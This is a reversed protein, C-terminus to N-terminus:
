TEKLIFKNIGHLQARTSFSSTIFSSLFKGVDKPVQLNMVM